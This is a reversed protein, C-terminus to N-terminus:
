GNKVKVILKFVLGYKHVLIRFYNKKRDCIKKDMFYLFDNKLRDKLVMIENYKFGYKLAQFFINVNVRALRDDFYVGHNNETNLSMKDRFLKIENVVLFLDNVLKHKTNINNNRTISNLTQVFKQIVFDTNIVNEAFFFARTNFEFDEIYLREKFSLKNAEIFIRNYVKNCVSPITENDLYYNIGSMYNANIIPIFKSISNLNEDVLEAGCELIDFTKNKIYFSLNLFCDELLIDDSDLFILYEGSANLIGTNRAGGLGKNEQSFFKVNDRNLCIKRAIELSNDPSGDDILIVEYTLDSPAQKFVSLLCREIYQAVNYMPIIISINM